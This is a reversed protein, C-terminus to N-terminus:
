SSFTWTISLHRIWRCYEPAIKMYNIILCTEFRWIKIFPCLMFPNPSHHKVDSEVTNWNYWPPWLSGGVLWLDSVHRDSLVVLWDCTVSMTTLSFWRGTVLWQCPQWLSGGVLWLDSVHRDSLVVSWDCTVSMATLSFWRGTVLWQCPLWLSGGVLWLDSVHHDSLVVSWDCTVSLHFLFFL